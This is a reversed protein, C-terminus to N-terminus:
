FLKQSSKTAWSVPYYYGKENIFSGTLQMIYAWFRFFFSKFKEDARTM